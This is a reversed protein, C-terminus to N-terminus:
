SCSIRWRDKWCSHPERLWDNEVEENRFLASLTKRIRFLYAIRDKTDRGRLPAHGSFLGSVVSVYPQDAAELGLLTTADARTLGWTELLRALFHIPGALRAQRARGTIPFRASLVVDLDAATRPAIAKSLLTSGSYYSVHVAARSPYRKEAVQSMVRGYGLGYPDDDPDDSVISQIDEHFTASKSARELLSYSRYIGVTESLRLIDRVAVIGPDHEYGVWRKVKTLNGM